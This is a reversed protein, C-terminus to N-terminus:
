AGSWVRIVYGFVVVRLTWLCPAFLDTIMFLVFLWVWMVFLWVAFSLLVVLEFCGCCCIDAAVGLLGFRFVVLVCDWHLM